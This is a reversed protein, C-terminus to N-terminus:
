PERERSAQRPALPWLHFTTGGAMPLPEREYRTLVFVPAHYRPEEGWRGRWSLDWEGRGPGFMDRGMVFAGNGSEAEAFVRADGSRGEQDDRVAM